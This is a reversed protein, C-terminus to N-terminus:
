VVGDSLGEDGLERMEVGQTSRMENKLVENFVDTKCDKSDNFDITFTTDTRGFILFGLVCM